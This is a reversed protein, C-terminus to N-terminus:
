PMARPFVHYGPVKLAIRYLAFRRPQDGQPKPGAATIFLTRDQEGAGFACNTPDGPTSIFALTGGQPNFVYIGAEDGHGAAAYINGQEDLTMGDIGRRDPGFDFLVRKGALTGDAQVRFALLQHAGDASSNNDAVYVTRGDASALIGNPKEVERTAVRAKGASDVVFVGEFDLERPDDGGYRPDTFYVRGDRAIALDNPSNFRKGDFSDALARVNGDHDTISVRRNGGPGAGECAVLRGVADFMLGNSKGSPERFVSVKETRPDYQMIRNGIDSFLIKGDPAPAPGETFDGDNWVVELKAGAGVIRGQMRPVFNPAPKGEARCAAAFALMLVAALPAYFADNSTMLAVGSLKITPTDGM